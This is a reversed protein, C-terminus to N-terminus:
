NSALCGGYRNRDLIVAPLHEHGGGLVMDVHLRASQALGDESVAELDDLKWVHPMPPGDPVM